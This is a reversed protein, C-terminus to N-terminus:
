EGKLGYLAISTGAVFNGGNPDYLRLSTIATTASAAYSNMGIGQYTGTGNSHNGSLSFGSRRINTNKYDHLDLVFCGFVNSLNDTGTVAYPLLILSSANTTRSISSAALFSHNYGSIAEVYGYGYGHDSTDKRIIGRLHLHTYTQPISSLLLESVTSSATATAISEWASPPDAQLRASPLTISGTTYASVQASPLAGRLISLNGM